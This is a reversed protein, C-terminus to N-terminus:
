HSNSEGKISLTAEFRAVTDTWRGFPASLFLAIELPWGDMDSLYSIKKREAWGYEPSAPFKEEVRIYQTTRPLDAPPQDFYYKLLQDRTRVDRHWHWGYQVRIKLNSAGAKQWEESSTNADFSYRDEAISEEKSTFTPLEFVVKAATGPITLGHHSPATEIRRGPEPQEHGSMPDLLWWGDNRWFRMTKGDSLVTFGPAESVADVNFQRLIKQQSFVIVTHPETIFNHPRGPIIIEARPPYVTQPPFIGAWLGSKSLAFAASLRGRGKQETSAYLFDLEQPAENGVQIYYRQSSDIPYDSRPGEPTLLLLVKKTTQQTLLREGPHTDQAPRVAITELKEKESGTRVGAPFPGVCGGVILILALALGARLLTM